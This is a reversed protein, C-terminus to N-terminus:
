SRAPAPWVERDPAARVPGPSGASRVAEMSRSDTLVRKRNHGNRHNRAGAEHEGELHAEMEANLAREAVAKRLGSVLEGNRFAEIPDEGALLEDLLEDSIRQGHKTM